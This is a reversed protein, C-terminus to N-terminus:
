TMDMVRGITHFYISITYFTECYVKRLTNSIVKFMIVSEDTVGTLTNDRTSDKINIM